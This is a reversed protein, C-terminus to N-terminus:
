GPGLVRDKCLYEGLALAIAADLWVLGKGPAATGAVVLVALAAREM